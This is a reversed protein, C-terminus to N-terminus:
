QYAKECLDKRDPCKGKPKKCNPCIVKEAAASMKKETNSTTSRQTNQHFLIPAAAYHLPDWSLM